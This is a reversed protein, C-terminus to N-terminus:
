TRRRISGDHNCEILDYGSLMEIEPIGIYAFWEGQLRRRAYQVHLSREVELAKVGVTEWCKLIKIRQGSALELQRKRTLPNKAVGIKRLQASNEMLYLRQENM